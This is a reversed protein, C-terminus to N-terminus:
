INTDYFTDYVIHCLQKYTLNSKTQANQYFHVLSHLFRLSSIYWIGAVSPPTVCQIKPNPTNVMSAWSKGMDMSEHYESTNKIFNYSLKAIDLSKSQWEDGLCICWYKTSAYLKIYGESPLSRVYQDLSPQNLGSHLDLNLSNSLQNEYLNLKTTHNNTSLENLNLNDVIQNDLKTFDTIIENLNHKNTTNDVSSIIDHSYNNNTNKHNLDRNSLNKSLVLIKNSTNM